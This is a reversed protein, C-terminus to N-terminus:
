FYIIIYWGRLSDEKVYFSRNPRKIQFVMDNAESEDKPPVVKFYFREWSDTHDMHFFFIDEKERQPFNSPPNVFEVITSATKGSMEEFTIRLRIPKLRCVFARNFWSGSKKKDEVTCKVKCSIASKPKIEFPLKVEELVTDVETPKWEQDGEFQYESRVEIITYSSDDANSNEVATILKVGDDVSVNGDKVMNLIMLREERSSGKSGTQGLHLIM